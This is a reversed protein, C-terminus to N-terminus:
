PKPHQTPVCGAILLCISYTINRGTAELAEGFLRYAEFQQIQHRRPSSVNAFHGKGDPPDAAPSKDPTALPLGTINAYMIPHADQGEYSLGRINLGYSM